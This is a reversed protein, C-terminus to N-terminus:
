APYDTRRRHESFKWVVIAGVCEVLYSEHHGILATGSTTPFRLEVTGTTPTLPPLIIFSAGYGGGPAENNLQLRTQANVATIAVGAICLTLLLKKM